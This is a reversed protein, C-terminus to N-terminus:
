AIDEDEDKKKTNLRRHRRNRLERISMKTPDDHIADDFNFSTINQINLSDNRMSYDKTEM